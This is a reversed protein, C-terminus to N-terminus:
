QLAPFDGVIDLASGLQTSKYQELSNCLDLSFKATRTVDAEQQEHAQLPSKQFYPILTGMLYLRTNLCNEDKKTFDWKQGLDAMFVVWENKEM